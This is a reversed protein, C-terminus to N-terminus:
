VKLPIPLETIRVAFHEDVAVLQGRAVVRGDLLLDIAQDIGSDLRVVQHERAAMLEGVTMDVQGVVAMLRTKVHHLPNTRELIPKGETSAGQELASLALMQAAPSHQEDASEHALQSDNPKEM